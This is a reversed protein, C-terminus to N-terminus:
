GSATSTAAKRRVHPRSAILMTWTAAPLGPEKRLQHPLVSSTRAAPKPKLAPTVVAPILEEVKETIQEGTGPAIAKQALDTVGRGMRGGVANPLAPLGPLHLNVRAGLPSLKSNVVDKRSQDVRLEFPVGADIHASGLPLEVDFVVSATATIEYLGRGDPPIVRPQSYEWKVVDHIREELLEGGIEKLKPNQGTLFGAVQEGLADVNADVWRAAIEEKSLPQDSRSIIFVATFVLLFAASAWLLKKLNKSTPQNRPHYAM